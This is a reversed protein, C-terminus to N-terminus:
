MGIDFATAAAAAAAAATTIFGVTVAAAAATTTTTISGGGSVIISVAKDKFCVFHDEQIIYIETRLVYVAQKCM